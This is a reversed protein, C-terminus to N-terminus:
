RTAGKPRLIGEITAMLVKLEFPKALFGRAGRSMVAKVSEPSSDSSMVLVPLEPWRERLTVMLELSDQGAVHRDLLAMALPGRELIGECEALTSAAEVDYQKRSLADVLAERITATDELVLIRM